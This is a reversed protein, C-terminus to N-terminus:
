YPMGSEGLRPLLILYPAGAEHFLEAIVTLSRPVCESFSVDADYRKWGDSEGRFILSDIRALKHVVAPKALDFRSVAELSVRATANKFECSKTRISIPSYATGEGILSALGGITLSSTTAFSRISLSGIREYSQGLETDGYTGIFTQIYSIPTAAYQADRAGLGFLSALSLVGAILGIIAPVKPVRDESLAFWCIYILMLGFAHRLYEAAGGLPMGSFCVGALAFGLPLIALGLLAKKPRTGFVLLGLVITAPIAEHNTAGGDFVNKLASVLAVAFLIVLSLRRERAAFRVFLWIALSVLAACDAFGAFGIWPPLTKAYAYGFDASNEWALRTHEPVLGAIAGFAAKMVHSHFPQTTSIDREAIAVIVRDPGAGFTVYAYWTVVAGLLFSAGLAWFFIREPIGAAAGKEGERRRYYLRAGIAILVAVALLVVKIVSRGSAFANAIAHLIFVFDM